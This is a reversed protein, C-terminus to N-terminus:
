VDKRAQDATILGAGVLFDVMDARENEGSIQKNYGQRIAKRVDSILYDAHGTAWAKLDVAGKKPVAQPVPPPKTTAGRQAPPLAAELDVQGGQTTDPPDADPAANAVAQQTQATRTAAEAGMDANRQRQRQRKEEFATVAKKLAEVIAAKGAPCTPGLIRKADRQFESWPITDAHVILETPSYSVDAAAPASASADSAGSAGPEDMEHLPTGAIIHRGHQDFFKDDQEFHAPRDFDPEIMPPHIEGFPKAKNLQLM